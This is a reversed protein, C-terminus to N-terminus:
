TNNETTQLIAKLRLHASLYDIHVRYGRQCSVNVSRYDQAPQQMRTNQTDDTHTRGTQGM